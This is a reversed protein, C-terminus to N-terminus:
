KSKNNCHGRNLSLISQQSEQILEQCEQNVLLTSTLDFLKQILHCGKRAKKLVKERKSM